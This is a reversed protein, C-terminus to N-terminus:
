SLASIMEVMPLFMAVVLTGVIAGFLFVAPIFLLKNYLDDKRIQSREKSLALQNLVAAINGTREASKLLSAEPRSIFGSHCVADIWNKGQAVAHQIQLGKKRLYDSPVTQCYTGLITSIPQQKQIGAAFVMLFKASDSSRFIRRFGFPRCILANTHLIVYVVIFVVFLWFFPMLLFWYHIFAESVLLLFLTPGPLVVAFDDFMEIFTPVIMLLVFNVIALMCFATSCLWTIRIISFTRIPAFNGEDQAVTELSRIVEPTNGGLRLMSAIDYRFLWWHYRVANELSQGADLAAAFWMLRAAYRRTCGLAYARVIEQLPKGTEAANQILTLLTRQRNVQYVAWVYLLFPLFLIGYIACQFVLYLGVGLTTVVFNNTNEAQQPAAVLMAIWAAALALCCIGLLKFANAVNERRRRSRVEHFLPSINLQTSM